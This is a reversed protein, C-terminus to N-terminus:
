PVVFVLDFESLYSRTEERACFDWIASLAHFLVRDRTPKTPDIFDVIINFVDSEKLDNM